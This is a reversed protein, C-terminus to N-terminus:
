YSPNSQFEAFQDPNAIWGHQIGGSRLETVPTTPDPFLRQVVKDLKPRGRFHDVFASYTISEGSKWEDVKFPGTYIPQRAFAHKPLDPPAVNQLLHKPMIIVGTAVNVLFSNSPAILTIEVRDPAITLGSIESAQRAKFEKAGVINAFDDTLPKPNDPHAAYEFTFKIDDTSFPQGDQWKVGPHLNFTYTKGDTSVAYKDALDEVVTMDPYKLRLLGNAIFSRIYATVLARSESLLLTDPENGSSVSIIAQGGAQGAAAPATTAAAPATTAAAPATTAAATAPTAAAV